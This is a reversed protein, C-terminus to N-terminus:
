LLHNMEVHKKIIKVLLPNLRDEDINNYDLNDLYNSIYEFVAKLIRCTIGNNNEIGNENLATNNCGGNCFDYISCSKCKERREIAKSILNIFGTSQFADQIDTYDYVNGYMYEKPFFRNCPGIDGAHNIGIWRGMCSTFTCLSLKDLLIYALINQFYNITINGSTDTAWYDFLESLKKVAVTENLALKDNQFEKQELYLNLSYGTDLKKFFEYSPILSDINVSSTVMILGCKKGRDIMRQRGALIAESNGRLEENKIGDYSGSVKFNNEVFFDAYEDSLLTLNTQISNNANCNYKRQLEVVKKYFEVGMLLPEGGHWIFNIYKYYPASIQIFKEVTELSMKECKINYPKHFCYVCNMNCANTPLMLVNLHHNSFIREKM